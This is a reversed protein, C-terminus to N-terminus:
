TANGFPNNRDYTPMHQDVKHGFHREVAPHWNELFWAVEPAATVYRALIKAILLDKDRETFIHNPNEAFAYIEDFTNPSVSTMRELTVYKFFPLGNQMDAPDTNIFMLCITAYPPSVVKPKGWCNSNSDWGACFFRQKSELVKKRPTIEEWFAHPLYRGYFNPFKQIIHPSLQHTNTIQQHPFNPNVPTHAFHM